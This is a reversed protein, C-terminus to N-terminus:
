VVSKRDRPDSATESSPVQLVAAWMQHQGVDTTIIAENETLESIREIVYPGTLVEQNYNMPLAEKRAMVKDIWEKHYQQELKKNLIELISKLDGVISYDIQINKNIEVPDIDIFLRPGAPLNRQM